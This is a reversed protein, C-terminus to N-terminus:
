ELVERARAELIPGPGLQRTEPRFKVIQRATRTDKGFSVAM